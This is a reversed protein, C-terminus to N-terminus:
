LISVVMICRPFLLHIACKLDAERELLCFRSCHYIILHCCLQQRWLPKGHSNLCCCPPPFSPRARVTGSPLMRSTYTSIKFYFEAGHELLFDIIRRSRLYESLSLCLIKGRRMNEYLTSILNAVSSFHFGSIPRSLEAIFSHHERMTSAEFHFKRPALRHWQFM